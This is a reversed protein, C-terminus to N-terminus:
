SLATQRKNENKSVGISPSCSIANFTNFTERKTYKKTPPILTLHGEKVESIIPALLSYYEKSNIPKTLNNKLQSFKQHLNEKSIYWYLQPHLKELQHLAFDTDKQLLKPNIPNNIQQNHKKVSICSSILIVTFLLLYKKM